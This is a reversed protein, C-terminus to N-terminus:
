TSYVAFVPSFALLNLTMYQQLTVYLRAPTENDQEGLGYDLCEGDCRSWGNCRSSTLSEIM